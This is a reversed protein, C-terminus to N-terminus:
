LCMRDYSINLVNLYINASLSLGVGPSPPGADSYAKPKPPLGVAEPLGLSVVPGMWVFGDGMAAKKAAAAQAPFRRKQHKLAGRAWVFAGYL